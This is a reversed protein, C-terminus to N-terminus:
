WAHLNSPKTQIDQASFVQFFPLKYNIITTWMNSSNKERYKMNKSLVLYPLGLHLTVLHQLLRPAFFVLNM